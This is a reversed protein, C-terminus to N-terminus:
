VLILLREKILFVHYSVGYALGIVEDGVGFGKVESGLEEITGSFEVGLIDTAGAPVPYGGKRQRSSM